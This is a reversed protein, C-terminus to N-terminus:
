KLSERMLEVIRVEPEKGEMFREMDARLPMTGEVEHLENWKRGGPIKFTVWWRSKFTSSEM